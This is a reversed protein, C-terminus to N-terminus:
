IAARHSDVLPLPGRQHLRGQKLHRARRHRTEPYSHTDATTVVMAFIYTYVCVCVVFVIEGPIPEGLCLTTSPGQDRM